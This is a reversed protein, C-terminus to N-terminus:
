DFFSDTLNFVADVFYLASQIEDATAFNLFADPFDVSAEAINFLSQVIYDCPKSLKFEFTVVSFVFVDSFANALQLGTCSHNFLTQTLQLIGAEAIAYVTDAFPKFAKFFSQAVKDAAYVIDVALPFVFCFAVAADICCIFISIVFDVSAHLTM